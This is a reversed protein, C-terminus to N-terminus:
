IVMDSKLTVFEDKPKQEINANGNKALLKSIETKPGETFLKGYGQNTSSFADRYVM